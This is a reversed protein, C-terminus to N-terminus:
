IYENTQMMEFLDLWSGDCGNKHIKWHRKQCQRSCYVSKGCGKCVKLHNDDSEQAMCDINACRLKNIEKDILETTPKYSEFEIPTMLKILKKAKQLFYKSLKWEGCAILTKSLWHFHNFNHLAFVESYEGM